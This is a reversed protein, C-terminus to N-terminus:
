ALDEMEWKLQWVGLRNALPAYIDRTLRATERRAESQELRVAYRLAQAHDALKVLVVRVDQVMALLMKRLAELQAAQEEPKLREHSRGSLASIGGMRVVGDVLDAVTKGFSERLKEASEPAVAHARFLLAAAMAEHDLRLEGLIGATDLAHDLLDEGSPLLRDAYRPGAFELARRLVERDTPALHGAVDALWAAAHEEASSGVLRLQAARPKM